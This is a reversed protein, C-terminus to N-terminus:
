MTDNNIHNEYLFQLYIYLSNYTYVVYRMIYLRVYFKNEKKYATDISSFVLLLSTIVNHKLLIQAKIVKKYLM